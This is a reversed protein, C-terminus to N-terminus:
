RAKKQRKRYSNVWGKVKRKLVASAGTSEQFVAEIARHAPSEGSKPFFECGCAPCLAMRLVEPEADPTESAEVETDDVVDRVGVEPQGCNPCALDQAGPADLAPEPVGLDLVEDERLRRLQRRLSTNM